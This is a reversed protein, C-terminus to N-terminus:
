WCRESLCSSGFRCNERKRWHHAILPATALSCRSVWVSDKCLVSCTNLCSVILCRGRSSASPLSSLTFALSDEKLSSLFSLTIAVVALLGFAVSGLLGILHMKIKEKAFRAVVIGLVAQVFGIAATLYLVTGVVHTLDNVAKQLANSLVRVIAELVAWKLWKEKM